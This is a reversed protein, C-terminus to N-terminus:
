KPCSSSLDLDPAVNKAGVKLNIGLATVVDRDKGIILIHREGTFSSEVLFHGTPDLFGEHALGATRGFMPVVRVWWDGSLPCGRVRGILTSVSVDDGADQQQGARLSFRQRCSFLPVLWRPSTGDALTVLLEIQRGLVARPFHLTTGTVVFRLRPDALRLLNTTRGEGRVENVVFSLPAGFADYVPLHLVCRPPPAAQAGSALWGGCCIWSLSILRLLM